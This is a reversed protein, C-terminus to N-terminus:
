TWICTILKYKDELGLPGKTSENSVQCLCEAPVRVSVRIISCDIEILIKNVHKFFKNKKNCSLKM